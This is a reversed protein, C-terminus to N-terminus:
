RFQNWFGGDRHDQGENQDAVTDNVAGPPDFAEVANDDVEESADGDRNYTRGTQPIADFELRSSLSGARRAEQLLEVIEPYSAGVEVLQRVIDSVRLSCERVQDERNSEFKAVRAPGLLNDAKVMLHKGSFLVFPPSMAQTTGFLVIEARRSRSVHVMPDAQCAIEHLYIEDGLREGRITPDLENMTQLARFAGYRTEASTVQMLASLRDHAEISSMGSLADLARARFAPENLALLALHQAAEPIDLYGLAESAYFRVEPDTSQLGAQLAPVGQKGVAELKLAAMASTTPVLLEAQMEALRDSTVFGERLPIQELVRFYRFLNHRYAPHPLLEIFDDRKPIAVGQKIGHVYTDFRRNIANGVLKSVTVSQYSDKVALGLPRSQTAVGGGLVWGRVERVADGNGELLSEVLVPGRAVARVRGSHLGSGLIAVDMLRTEMLWGNRLSTTNSRAPVSVEIDVRDGKQVGPPLIAKTLVLATTPLALIQNPHKVDRRRMDDILMQRQTSDPPDGGTDRLQSVMGVSEVKVSTM